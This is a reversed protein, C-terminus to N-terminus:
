LSCPNEEMIFLNKDYCDQMNELSQYTFEAMANHNHERFHNTGVRDRDTYVSLNIKSIILNNRISKETCSEFACMMLADNKISNLANAVLFYKWRDTAYDTYRIMTKEFEGHTEHGGYNAWTPIYEKHVIPCWSPHSAIFVIKDKPRWEIQLYERLKYLSWEISTGGLAYNILERNFKTALQKPWAYEERCPEAVSPGFVVIRSM